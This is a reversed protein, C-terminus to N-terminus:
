TIRFIPQRYRRGLIKEVRPVREGSLTSRYAGQVPRTVAAPIDSSVIRSNADEPLLTHLFEPEDTVRRSGALRREAAQKAQHCVRSSNVVNSGNLLVGGCPTRPGQQWWIIQPMMVGHRGRQM